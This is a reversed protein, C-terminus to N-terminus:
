GLAEIYAVVSAAQEATLRNEPMKISFGAATTADPDLIAQTLYASDAVVTSGDTLEVETGALGAWKAGVGGSGDAGHCAFCGSNLAVDYGAQAEPSLDAPAMAADDACAAAGALVGLLVLPRLLTSVNV